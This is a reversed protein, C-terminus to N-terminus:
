VLGTKRPYVGIPASASDPVDLAFEQLIDSSLEGRGVGYLQLQDYKRGGALGHHEEINAFARRLLDRRSETGMPLLLTVNAGEAQMQAVVPSNTPSAIVWLASPAAIHAIREGFQPDLVLAVITKGPSNAM